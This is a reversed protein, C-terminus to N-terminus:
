SSRGQARSPTHDELGLEFSRPSHRDKPECPVSSHAQSKNLTVYCEHCFEVPLGPEQCEPLPEPRQVLVEPQCQPWRHFYLGGSLNPPDTVKGKLLCGGYLYTISWMIGAMPFSPGVWEQYCALHNNVSNLTPVLSPRWVCDLWPIHCSLLSGLPKPGTTQLDM